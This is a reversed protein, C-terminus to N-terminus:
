VVCIKWTFLVDWAIMYLLLEFNHSDVFTNTQNIRVVGCYTLLLAILILGHRKGSIECTTFPFSLNEYIGFQPKVICSSKVNILIICM